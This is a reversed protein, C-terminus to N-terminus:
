AQGGGRKQTTLAVEAGLVAAEAAFEAGGFRDGGHGVLKGAQDIPEQLASVLVDILAQLVVLRSVAFL